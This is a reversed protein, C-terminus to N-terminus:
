QGIPKVNVILKKVNNTRCINLATKFDCHTGQSGCCNQINRNDWKPNDYDTIVDRYGLRLTQLRTLRYLAESTIKTCYCMCLEELNTLKVLSSNELFKNNNSILTKLGTLLYFSEGVFKNNESINLTKLNLLQGVSRDTINNISSIDLNTLFSYKSVNDDTIINNYGIKLSLLNPLLMIADHNINKNHSIDLHTLNTLLVVSNNTINLCDGLILSTLNQCKALGNDTVLKNRSLNWHTINSFTELMTDTIRTADIDTPRDFVQLPDSFELFTLGTLTYFELHTDADTCTGMVLKKLHQFKLIFDMVLRSNSKMVDQKKIKCTDTVISKFSLIELNQVKKHWQNRWDRCASSSIKNLFPYFLDPPLLQYDCGTYALWIDSEEIPKDPRISDMTLLKILQNFLRNTM